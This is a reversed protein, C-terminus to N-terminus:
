VRQFEERMLIARVSRLNYQLLENLRDTLNDPRKVLTWRANKLVSEYGDQKLQKAETARVQYIKENLKMMVHFRDLVRVAHGAEEAAVKLYNSWMDSCIFKLGALTEAPIIRVFGRFSNETCDKAVYLFRRCGADPRYVLAM